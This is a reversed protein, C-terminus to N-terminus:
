HRRGRLRAFFGPRKREPEPQRSAAKESDVPQEVTDVMNDVPQEVQNVRKVSGGNSDFAKKSDVPQEVTDVLNDVPQEVQNDDASVTEPEKFYSSIGELMKQHQGLLIQYNEQLQGQQTLIETLKGTLRTLETSQTMVHAQLTKVQQRLDQIEERQREIERDKDPAEPQPQEPHEQVSFLELAARDILRKGAESKTFPALDSALRKYVAQRSVGAAKAFESVTIYQKM